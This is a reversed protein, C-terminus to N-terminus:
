SAQDFLSLQDYGESKNKEFARLVRAFEDERGGIAKLVREVIAKHKQPVAINVMSEGDGFFSYTEPSEYYAIVQKSTLLMRSALPSSIYMKEASKCRSLAVYLQGVTFIEPSLNMAEYTQGQSKHITIAYGLKM